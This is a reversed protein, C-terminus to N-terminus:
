TSKILNNVGTQSTYFLFVNIKSHFFNVKSRLFNTIVGREHNIEVYIITDTQKIFKPYSFLFISVNFPVEVPLGFQFRWIKRENKRASFDEHFIM